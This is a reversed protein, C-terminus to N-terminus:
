VHKTLKVDVTSHQALSNKSKAVVKKETPVSQYKQKTEHNMSSYSQHKKPAEVTPKNLKELPGGIFEEVFYQKVRLGQFEYPRIWAEFSDPNEQEIMSKQQSSFKICSGVSCTYCLDLNIENGATDNISKRKLM